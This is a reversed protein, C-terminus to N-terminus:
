LIIGFLVNFNKIASLGSNGDSFGNLTDVRGEVLIQHSKIQYTAGAGFAIGFMYTRMPDSFLPYTTINQTNALNIISTYENKGDLNFGNMFGANVYPRLDTNTFNYRFMVPVKILKSEISSIFEGSSPTSFSDKYQHRTYLVETQISAQNSIHPLTFSLSIGGIMSSSPYERGLMVSSPGSTLTFDSKNYGVVIGIKATSKERIQVLLKGSPDICQNYSVFIDTLPKISLRLNKTKEQVSACEIFANHLIRRFEPDIVTVEGLSPKVTKIKVSRLEQLTDQKIMFYHNKENVDRYTYLSVKGKVVLNLFLHQSSNKWILKKSEYRYGNDFGYAEVTEPLYTTEQGGLTKSFTISLNNNIESKVKLFGSITDKGLVLYGPRVNKQANATFCLSSLIFVLLFFKM